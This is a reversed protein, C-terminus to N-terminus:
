VAVNQELRAELGDFAHTWGITMGARERVFAAIEAAAAGGHAVSTVTVRTRGPAEEAFVVTTLLTAPWADAGPAPAPQEREDVFQQTYVIRRSPEIALYEARVHMAAREGAIVFFTSKGAAIESRLFRMTTGAPPLWKALHDPNTWMEFVHALPADFTRNIVFQQQGTTTQELHEALRDWTANGGKQRIAKATERAAEPSSLAFILDMTTRGDAESFTVTVRFLAPRDDTAGHDYVLTRYPEVVYYTTVNPYDVGDPGHMTYRWSGGARLDRAHTTLTFGRPGWWNEVQEPITWADWVTRVPADYVRTLRIENASDRAAM